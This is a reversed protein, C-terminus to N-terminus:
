QSAVRAKEAILNRGDKALYDCVAWVNRTMWSEDREVHFDLRGAVFQAWWVLLLPHVLNM